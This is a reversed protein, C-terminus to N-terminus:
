LLWCADLGGSSSDSMSVLFSWGPGRRSHSISKVESSDRLDRKLKSFFQMSNDTIAPSHAKEGIHFAGRKQVRWWYKSHTHRCQTYVHIHWLVLRSSLFCDAPSPKREGEMMHTQPISGLYDPNTALVKVWQAMEGAWCKSEKIQQHQKENHTDMACM